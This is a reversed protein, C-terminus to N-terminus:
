GWNQISFELKVQIKGWNQWTPIYFVLKRFYLDDDELYHGKSDNKRGRMVCPKSIQKISLDRRRDAEAHPNYDPGM